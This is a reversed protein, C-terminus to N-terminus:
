EAVELPITRVTVVLQANSPIPKFDSRLALVTKASRQLNLMKIDNARAAFYRIKSSQGAAPAAIDALSGDILCALEMARRARAESVQATALEAIFLMHVHPFFGAPVSYVLALRVAEPPVELGTADEYEVRSLIHVDYHPTPFRSIEDVAENFTQRIWEHQDEPVVRPVHYLSSKM